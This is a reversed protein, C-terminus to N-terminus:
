MQEYASPSTKHPSPKSSPRAPQQPRPKPPAPKERTSAAGAAGVEAVTSAVPRPPEPIPAPNASNAAAAPSAPESALPIASEVVPEPGSRRSNWLLAGGAAAAIALLAGAGLAFRSRKGRTGSTSGASVAAAAAQADLVPSSARRLRPNDTATPLQVGLIRAASAISARSREPAFPALAAALEAVNEFRDERQKALCRAVVADLGPDLEPRLSQMPRHEVTAVMVALGAVSDAMFPPKGIVLEYLITGLSWIDARGDVDRTSTMQEPSMYSPSGLITATGTIVPSEAVSSPAKSIGFDLV